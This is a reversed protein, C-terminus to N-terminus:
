GRASLSKVFALLEDRHEGPTYVVLSGMTGSVWLVPDEATEGGALAWVNRAQELLHEFEGALNSPVAM